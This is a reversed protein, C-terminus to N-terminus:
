DLSRPPQSLPQSQVKDLGEQRLVTPSSIPESKVRMQKAKDIQARLLDSETPVGVKIVAPSNKGLYESDKKM